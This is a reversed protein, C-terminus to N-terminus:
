RNGSEEPPGTTSRGLGRSRKSIGTGWHRYWRYGGRWAHTRVCERPTHQRPGVGPGRGAECARVRDPIKATSNKRTQAPGLQKHWSEEFPQMPHMSRSPQKSSRYWWTRACPLSRGGLCWPSRGAWLEDTCDEERVPSVPGQHARLYSRLTPTEMGDIREKSQSLWRSGFKAGTLRVLPDSSRKGCGRSPSITRRRIWSNEPKLM